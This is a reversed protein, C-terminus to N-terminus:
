NRARANGHFVDNLQQVFKDPPRAFFIGNSPKRPDIGRLFIYFAGGFKKDYDYGALRQELYRHLAVTYISLQLNYFNRTMEATVNQPVYSSADTGLWNSKWDVFYFRDAREFVLDIFGKMFGNAPAFQLRDIALPLQDIQFVKRLRSTTLATIPFTFELESLRSARSVESLKFGDEGLPIRLTKELMDCVVDDFNEFHFDALKRTVLPRLQSLDTFDLEELILHLCTGARMGGPFAHIGEAPLVPEEVVQIESEVADYDPTGPEEMRGSVLSTFSAIRWSSDIDKNFVRAALLSETAGPRAFIEEGREPLEEVAIADSGAFAARVKASTASEGQGDLFAEASPEDSFLWSVASKSKRSIEQWVLYSRHQARTLGVYLQRVMEALEERRRMFERSGELDLVLKDGEHYKLFEKAGSWPEKRLFPYFTVRYELGKCKHITVIRVADEDSELRLEYQDRGEGAGSVQRALWKILGDIGFRNEICATHLIEVLHLVNTLRRDGDRWSLLRSRVKEGILLARMMQVFGHDRWLLHYEAFRNLTAEWQTEDGSLNDLVSAGFGLTETALAARVVREYTPKSVALLIRLLM